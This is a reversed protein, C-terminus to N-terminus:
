GAAALGGLVVEWGSSYGAHEEAAQDGFAEWGWHALEVRTRAEGVPVFRVEWTTTPKSPNVGWEVRMLTPSEWALITGWIHETGDDDTEVIKGGAGPEVRVTKAKEEGISHTALPWWVAMEETFLKFAAEIEREVTVETEVRLTM